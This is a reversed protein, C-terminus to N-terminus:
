RFSVKAYRHKHIASMLPLAARRFRAIKSQLEAVGFETDAAPKKMRDIAAVISTMEEELVLLAQEYRRYREEPTM